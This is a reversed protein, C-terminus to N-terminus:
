STTQRIASEQSGSDLLDGDIAPVAYSAGGYPFVAVTAKPGVKKEAAAMMAEISQFPKLVGLKRSATPELHESYCWLHNRHLMRVGFQNLFRQEVPDFCSVGREFAQSLNAGLLKVLSRSVSYPLKFWSPHLDGMGRRCYLFGLLLGDPRAAYETNGLCKLGQRLDEDFPRSNAIVVDAPEPVSLATTRHVFDAGARFAQVPDGCFFRVVEGEPNLVVNVLFIEKKLKGAAEELDLRMPSHEASAGVYNFRDANMGQLHNRGITEEGACGPVIM